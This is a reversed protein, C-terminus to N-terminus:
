HRKGKSVILGVKTGGPLRVGRPPATAIVRGRTVKGSFRKAISGRRCYSKKLSTSAKSITKGRLNPVVCNSGGLLRALTWANGSGGGVLIKQDAQLALTSGGGSFSVIGGRGFSTDLRGNPRLRVLASREPQSSSEAILIKGDKQALMATPGGLQRRIRVLGGEGFASDLGGGADFRALVPYGVSGDNHLTAGAVLIKGGDLAPPGGRLYVNPDAPEWGNTTVKGGTGFAPDLSGDPKYRALAMQAIDLGGHCCDEGSGTAVIKGDPQVAIGSLWDQAIFGTQVIGANGFTPDLSGDPRYEALAFWGSAEIFDGGTSGAALIEGSPLIALATAGALERNITDPPAQWPIVTKTIGDTGFGTDLSGNATYRAVAFESLITDSVPGSSGAVVIKGDAQLALAGTSIGTTVYGGDGFSSDVSGDPLYRVVSGSAAVVIKGDPQVVIGAIGPYRSGPNHTVVGGSGFSPDLDGALPLNAASSMGLMGLALLLLGFLSAVRKVRSV